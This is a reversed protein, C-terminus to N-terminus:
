GINSVFYVIDVSCTKNVFDRSRETLHIRFVVVVMVMVVEVVVM